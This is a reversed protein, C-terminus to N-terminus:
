IATTFHDKRSVQVHKEIRYLMSLFEVMDKLFTTVGLYCQGKVDKM